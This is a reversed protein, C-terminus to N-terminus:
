EAWHPIAAPLQLVEPLLSLVPPYQYAANIIFVTHICILHSM